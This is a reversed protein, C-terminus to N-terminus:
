LSADLFPSIVTHSRISELNSIVESLNTSNVKRTAICPQVADDVNLFSLISKYGAHPDKVFDEYFIELCPHGDFRERLIKIAAKQNRIDQRFKDPDVETTLQAPLEDKAWVLVRGKKHLLTSAYRALHNRRELWIIKLDKQDALWLFADAFHLSFAQDLILKFGVAKKKRDAVFIREHFFQRTDRSRELLMTRAFVEPSLAKIAKPLYGRLMRRVQKDGMVEGHMHVQPHRALIERLMTSGSRAPSILVFRTIM